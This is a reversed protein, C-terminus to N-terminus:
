ESTVSIMVLSRPLTPRRLSRPEASQLAASHTPALCYPVTSHPADSHSAASHLALTSHPQNVPSAHRLSPHPPTYPSSRRFPPPTVPPLDNVIQQVRPRRQEVVHSKPPAGEHATPRATAHRTDFTRQPIRLLDTPTRNSSSFTAPQREVSLQLILQKVSPLELLLDRPLQERGTPRPTITREASHLASHVTTSHLTFPPQTVPSRRRLAPRSLLAASHLRFAPPTFHSRCCPRYLKSSQCRVASAIL